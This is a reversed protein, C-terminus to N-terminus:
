RRRKAYRGVNGQPEVRALGVRGVLTVERDGVFHTARGAGDVPPQAGVVRDQQFDAVAGRRPVSLPYSFLGSSDAMRRSVTSPGCEWGRERCAPLPSPSPSEAFPTRRRQSCRTISIVRVGARTAPLRRIRERKASYRALSCPGLALWM